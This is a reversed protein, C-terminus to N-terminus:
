APKHLLADWDGDFIEDAFGHLIADKPSLFVDEKRDMNSRLWTRCQTETKGKWEDSELMRSIYVDLMQKSTNKYMQGETIFQKGTGEFGVTGDHFMFWSHPMMVRKDCASFILSSMSRASTYNLAVVYCPCFKITDYIAIGENWDGGHTKLHILIPEDGSNMLLHFNKLFRTTMSYEVGPDGYIPEGIGHGIEDTPTLWIERSKLDLGYTHAYQIYDTDKNTYKHKGIKM